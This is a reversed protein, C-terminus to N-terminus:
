SQPLIQASPQVPLLATSAPPSPEPEPLATALCFHLFNLKWVKWPKTQWWCIALGLSWDWCLHFGALSWSPWIWFSHLSQPYTAYPKTYLNIFSMGLGTMTPNLTTSRLRTKYLHVIFGAVFSKSCFWLRSLFLKNRSKRPVLYDLLRSKDLRLDSDFGLRLPEQSPQRWSPTNSEMSATQLEDKGLCAKAQVQAPCHSTIPCLLIRETLEQWNGALNEVHEM